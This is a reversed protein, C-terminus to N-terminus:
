RISISYRNDTELDDAIGRIKTYSLLNNQMLYLIVQTRSSVGLKNFIHRLHTEVTRASIFLENAIEANRWGKALLMLVRHEQKTLGEMPEM